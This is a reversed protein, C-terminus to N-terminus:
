EGKHEYADALYKHINRSVDTAEDSQGIGALKLMSDGHFFTRRKRARKGRVPAEEEVSIVIEQGEELSLQELPEIKGKSYRAKIKRAM